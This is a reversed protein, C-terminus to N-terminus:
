GGIGASRRGFLKINLNRRREWSTFSCAPYNACGYFTRGKRTRREVLEGGDLPCTVGVKNLLPKTNRCEPFGTCAIFRGFRGTRIIMPRGCRACNEGAPEDELTVKEMTADARELEAEFPQYFDSLVPVWGREGRAIDDLEEEM